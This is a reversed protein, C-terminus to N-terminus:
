PPAQPAAGGISALADRLSLEDFRAAAALLTLHQRMADPTIVYDIRTDHWGPTLAAQRESSGSGTFTRAIGHEPGDCTWDAPFDPM